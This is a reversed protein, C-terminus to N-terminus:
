LAIGWLRQLSVAHVAKGEIASPLPPLREAVLIIASVAGSKAYARLQRLLVSVAPKGRKVEVGIDGCLFDIRCRPAISAEHRYAIGGACLAQEVLDHITYESQTRPARIAALAHLIDDTAHM